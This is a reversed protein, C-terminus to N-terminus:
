KGGLAEVIKEMQMGRSGKIYIVDHENIEKKLIEIAEETSRTTVTKERYFGNSVAGAAIHKALSGVTILRHIRMQALAEGARRHYQVGQRGLELMDGIVATIRKTSYLNCIEKLGSLLSVPNSNYSDDVITVGSFGQVVQWRGKM